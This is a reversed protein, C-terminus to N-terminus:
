RPFRSERVLTCIQMRYEALLGDRGREQVARHEPHARFAAAAEESAFEIHALLEGDEAMFHKYAVFGPQAAALAYMARTSAVLEKQAGPQMRMRFVIVVVFVGRAATAGRRDRGCIAQPM